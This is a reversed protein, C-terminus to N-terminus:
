KQRSLTGHCPDSQVWACWLDPANLNIAGSLSNQQIVKPARM